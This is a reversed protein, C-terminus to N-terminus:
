VALLRLTISYWEADDPDSVATRVPAVTMPAAADRRWIVDHTSGDDLTLTMPAALAAAQMAYLAKVTARTVWASTREGALTIPRGSLVASEERVLAGSETWSLSQQVPTWAFEDDWHLDPLAISNLTITM